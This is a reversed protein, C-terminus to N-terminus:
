LKIFNINCEIRVNLNHKTSRALFETKGRQQYITTYPVKKILVESGYKEPFEHWEKYDVIQFQKGKFLFEIMNELNKGQKNAKSGSSQIM